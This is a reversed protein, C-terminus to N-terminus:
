LARRLEVVKGLITVPLAMIEQISFFKDEFVDKNSATLWVGNETIRVYKVTCDEGNIQVVTLDHPTTETQHQVKIRDGDHLEPLMSDGCVSCWSFGDETM